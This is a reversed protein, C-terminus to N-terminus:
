ENTPQKRPATCLEVFVIFTIGACFLFGTWCCMVFILADELKDKIWRM